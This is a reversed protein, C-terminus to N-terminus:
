WQEPKRWRKILIRWKKLETGLSKTDISYVNEWWRDYTDYKAESFRISTVHDPCYHSNSQASLFGEGKILPVVHWEPLPIVWAATSAVVDPHKGCFNTLAELADKQM